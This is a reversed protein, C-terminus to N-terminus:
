QHLCYYRGQIVYPPCCWHFAVLPYVPWSWGVPMSARLVSLEVVYHWVELCDRNLWANLVDLQCDLKHFKLRHVICVALVM